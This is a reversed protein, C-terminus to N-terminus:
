KHRQYRKNTDNPIELLTTLWIEDVLSKNECLLKLNEVILNNTHLICLTDQITTEDWNIASFKNIHAVLHETTPKKKSVSKIDNVAELFLKVM